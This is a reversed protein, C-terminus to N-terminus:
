CAPCPHFCFKCGFVQVCTYTLVMHHMAMHAVSCNAIMEQKNREILRCLKGSVWRQTISRTTMCHCHWWRGLVPCFQHIISPLHIVLAVFGSQQNIEMELSALMEKFTPRCNTELLQIYDIDSFFVEWHLAYVSSLQCGGQCIVRMSMCMSIRM